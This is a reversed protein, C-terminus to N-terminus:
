LRYHKVDILISLNCAHDNRSYPPGSIAFNVNNMMYQLIVYQYFPKLIENALNDNGCVNSSGIVTM